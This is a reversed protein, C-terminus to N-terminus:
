GGSVSASPWDATMFAGVFQVGDAKAKWGPKDEHLQGTDVDLMSSTQEALGM